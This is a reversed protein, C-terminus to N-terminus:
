PYRNTTGGDDALSAIARDWAASRAHSLWQRLVGIVVVATATVALWFSIGAIAADVGARWWPDLPNARRGDAYVWIDIDEGARVPEAWQFRDVHQVGGFQWRAQVVTVDTRPLTVSDDIVKAQIQQRTQMEALYAHGREDHIATAMACALPIAIISAVFALAISIAEVRDSGRVLPNSGFAQRLRWRWWACTFTQMREGERTEALCWM